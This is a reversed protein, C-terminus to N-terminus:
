PSLLTEIRKRQPHHEEAHELFRRYNLVAEEKNALHNLLLDGLLLYADAHRPRRRLVNRFHQEANIYTKMAMACLGLRLHIEANNPEAKLATKLEESAVAPMNLDLWCCGIMFQAASYGPDLELARAFSQRARGLYENKKAESKASLFYFHRGIMYAAHANQPSIQLAKELPQLAKEQGMYFQASGLILWPLHHKPALHTAKEAHEEAGLYDGRDMYALALRCRAEASRPKLRVAEKFRATARINSEEGGLRALKVGESMAQQFRARDGAQAWTLTLLLSALLLPTPRNM